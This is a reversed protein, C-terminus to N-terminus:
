TKNQENFEKKLLKYILRREFKDLGTIKLWTMVFTPRAKIYRKLLSEPDEPHIVMKKVFDEKKIIDLIGENCRSCWRLYAEVKNFQDQFMLPYHHQDTIIAHNYIPNSADVPNCPEEPRTIFKHGVICCWLKKM